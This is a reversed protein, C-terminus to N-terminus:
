DASRDLMKSVRHRRLRGHLRKRENGPRRPDIPHLAPRLVITRYEMAVVGDHSRNLLHLFALNRKEVAVQAIPHTVLMARQEAVPGTQVFLDRNGITPPLYDHEIEIPGVACLTLRFAPLFELWQRRHQYGRDGRM